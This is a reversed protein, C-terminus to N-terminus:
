YAGRGTVVAPVTLALLRLDMAVSAHRIYDLDMALQQPFPVDGRGSVQWICTLGPVVSLRERHEVAYLAVERPLAPRPGVLTMEGRLVCWLQPLEDISARRIWRGVPTIRPDHKLKFTTGGAGHQNQQMLTQLRAEADMSMSRFKPFSFEVGHRGVRRQWYLVPGGDHWRIALAVLALLPLLLLGLTGIVLLDLSRKFLGLHHRQWWWRWMAIRLRCRNVWPQSLPQPQANTATNM